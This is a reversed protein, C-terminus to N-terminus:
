SEQAHTIECNKKESLTFLRRIRDNSFPLILFSSISFASSNRFASQSAKEWLSAPERGADHDVRRSGTV